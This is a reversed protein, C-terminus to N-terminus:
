RKSTDMGVAPQVTLTNASITETEAGMRGIIKEPTSRFRMMTIVRDIKENDLVIARQVSEKPIKSKARASGAKKWGTKTAIAKM